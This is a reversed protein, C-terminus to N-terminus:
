KVRVTLGDDGRVLAAWNFTSGAMLADKIKAKDPERKIRCMDDPVSEDDNIVLRTSGNRISLTAAPLERKRVNAAQMVKLMLDRAAKSRQEFRCQRAKLDAIQTAIAGTMAAADREQAILQNLLGDLDTESDLVLEWDEGDAFLGPYSYRLLEIQARVHNPDIRM